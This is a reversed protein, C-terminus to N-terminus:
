RRWFIVIAGNGHALIGCVFCKCVNELLSGTSMLLTSIHWFLVPDASVIYRTGVLQVGLQAVLWVWVQGLDYRNPRVQRVM